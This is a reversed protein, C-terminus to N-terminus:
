LAIHHYLSYFVVPGFIQNELLYILLFFLSGNLLFKYIHTDGGMHSMQLCISVQVPQINLLILSDSNM